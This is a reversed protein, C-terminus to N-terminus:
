DDVGRSVVVMKELHEHPDLKANTQQLHKELLRALDRRAAEDTARRAALESLVVMGFPQPMGNGSVCRKSSTTM